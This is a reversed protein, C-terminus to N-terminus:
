ELRPGSTAECVHDGECEKLGGNWCGVGTGDCPAAKISRWWGGNEAQSLCAIGDEGANANDRFLTSRACIKCDVDVFM